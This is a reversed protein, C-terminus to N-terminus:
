LQNSHYTMYSALNSLFLTSLNTFRSWYNTQLLWYAFLLLLLLQSPFLSLPLCHCSVFVKCSLSCFHFPEQLIRDCTCCTNATGKFSRSQPRQNLFIVKAGNITYPQWGIFWVMLQMLSLTIIHDDNVKIV